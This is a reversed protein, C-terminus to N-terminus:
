PPQRLKGRSLAGKVVESKQLERLRNMEQWFREFEQEVSCVISDRRAKENERRGKTTAVDGRDVNPTSSLSGARGGVMTGDRSTTLTSAGRGCGSSCPSFCPPAVEERATPGGGVGDNSTATHPRFNNRQPLVLGEMAAEIGEVVSAADQLRPSMSSPTAVGKAGKSPVRCRGQEQYERKCRGGVVFVEEAGEKGHVPQGGVTPQHQERGATKVAVAVDDNGVGCSANPRPSRRDHHETNVTPGSPPEAAVFRHVVLFEPLVFAENLIRYEEERPFYISDFEAQGPPPTPLSFEDAPRGSSRPSSARQRKQLAIADTRHRPSLSKPDHPPTGGNGKRQGWAAPSTTAAVHTSGIMVRCLALFRLGSVAGRQQGDEYSGDGPVRHRRQRQLSHCGSSPPSWSPHHQRMGRDKDDCGCSSRNAYQREEELTSHRSFARPFELPRKGNSGGSTERGGSVGVTPAGILSDIPDLDWDNTPLLGAKGDTKSAAGSSYGGCEDMLAGAGGMGYLVVHELSADPVHCFLGKVKCPERAEAARKFRDLLFRNEMKYIDLVRVAGYRSESSFFGPRVNETAARLCREHQPHTPPLRRLVVCGVRTRHEATTALSALRASLELREVERRCHEGEAAVQADEAGMEASAAAAFSLVLRCLRCDLQARSEACGERYGGVAAQAAALRATALSGAITKSTELYNVRRRRVSRRQVRVSSVLGCLGGDAPDVAGGPEAANSEPHCLLLDRLEGSLGALLGTSPHGSGMSTPAAPASSDTCSSAALTGSAGSGSCSTARQTAPASRAPSVGVPDASRCFLASQASRLFIEGSVMFPSGKANNNAHSGSQQGPPEVRDSSVQEVAVHMDDAAMKDAPM